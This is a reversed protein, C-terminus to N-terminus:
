CRPSGRRFLNRRAWQRPTLHVEPRTPDVPEALPLPEETTPIGPVDVTM